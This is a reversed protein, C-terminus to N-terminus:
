AFLVYAAYALWVVWLLWGLFEVSPESSGHSPMRGAFLWGALPFRSVAHPVWLCALPALAVLGTRLAVEAGSWAAIVLLVTLVVITPM